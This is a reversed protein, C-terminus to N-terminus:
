GASTRQRRRVPQWGPHAPWGASPLWAVPACGRMRAMVRASRHRRARIHSGAFSALEVAPELRDAYPSSKRAPRPVGALRFLVAHRRNACDRLRCTRPPRDVGTPLLPSARVLRRVVVIKARFRHFEDSRSSFVLDLLLRDRLAEERRDGSWDTSRERHRRGHGTSIYISWDRDTDLHGTAHGCTPQPGRHRGGAARAVRVPHEAVRAGVVRQRRWGRDPQVRRPCAESRGVPCLRPM